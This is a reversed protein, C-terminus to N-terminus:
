GERLTSSPPARLVSWTALTGTVGVLVTGAVVGGLWLFGNFRYPLHFLYVSLWWGALSAACAALVGALVGIAMFEVVVGSLVLRRSAGLTRLLASEFRREQRTAQIAALLVLMGALM